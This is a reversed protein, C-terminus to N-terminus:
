EKRALTFYFTAGEGVKGEAWVSGGHRRVIRQVIALGVGTGEFEEASHLRQFVSFLKDYYQMDFGVGNDKVFYVNREKEPYAGVEVTATERFKSFKFANSLLNVLVEKILAQDGSAHPLKQVSFQIRREPNLLTLETWATRVLAEMDLRTNVLEKRGLRSFSLLDDILQGMKQSSGRIVNLKRRGEDDLKDAYGKLVMRSFGDITLLPARLDHSVSYSFSELEKNAAQLAENAESLEKTREKVRVEMDALLKQLAEQALKRETIDRAAAFVGIVKGAEDKYVSANYLVPTIKRDSRRISLEYNRVRGESFVQRYGSRAKGPDTFYDSFDTGILESRTYGTVQETAANVDTITGEPDITVLPDLSAEILSRNYVGALRLAEATRKQASIDRAITSAGIVQGRHDRIPSLTLSVDITQGDKRIRQTEYHEIRTGERIRGLLVTMQDQQDAPILISVPRGLAEAASYGYLREAGENWSTIAGNLDKSIIADDSSEVIAALKSRAEEARKQESIDRAAAFVGIVNGTEDRYVSANYLVPTIEGNRNRIELEYDRVFGQKFVQQYGSRAKEPETFYDSFDTGVLQEKTYGTVHETAANVDSIKGQKDITVLPDLSAEILSRNYVSAIRLAEEARKRETIDIATGVIRVVDGASNLVPHRIALIHKVTGSSLAIRFESSVDVKERLLKEFDVNVRHWDEPHILRSVAERTSLGEQEDLGFIRICEESLYVYKDSAVDFAWSGTHSLRQAEALYAESQRLANEARKRDTIDLVIGDWVTEDRLRRPQSVGRVYMEEGTPKILKVEVDWPGVSRVVEDISNRWRAKDEPVICAEFREYWTKLPDISMGFVHEAQESVYYMGREGNDRAYYQYVIGPLNHAIGRFREESDRLAQEARKRETIDTTVGVIEIIDGNGDLIPHPVSHLHKLTGDPLVIRFELGLHIKERERNLGHVAQWFKWHKELDEPHVRQVAQDRTPLGSQPDFGWIRFLEESWYAPQGKGDHAWAGTRTLRQAEALYAESRRLAEEARKRDTIDRASVLHLQRGGIQFARVRVEVPFVTGDKRRHRTEFTCVEGAAVRDNIWQLRAADTDPDFDKPTMGIVEERTYGKGECAEWNVEVIKHQEDFVCIADGVHDLFTRFRMESERLEEEARRRETINRVLALNYARGGHEMYNASIEVPFIRGDRTRHRSEFSLSRHAQLDGWHDSWREAPFEPDIDPASMALLEARSYGLGRCAEENVYQFRGRDDILFAAVDRVNNLAFSFLTVEQEAQKRVAESRLTVIGFALDAALEELLRIEDSTFANPQASYISLSGFTNAHEDKLPLAIGSLFGHQLVSEQWPALRPDTALDQICCTKGSRIATGTPSWGRETDAWTIGLNALYGEEAGMWAVPRVSKAEDHEAYAVWAMRYGAEECAIRCIEELLSQEDTARLLIQSCSSIARLERNVRRLAEEAQKRETIDIVTGVWQVVEGADNLVPHRSILVWPKPDSDNRLRGEQTESRQVSLQAFMHPEEIFDQLRKGRLEEAPRGLM